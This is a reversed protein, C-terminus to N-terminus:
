RTAVPNKVPDRRTKEEGTKEEVQGPELEPDVLQAPGSKL